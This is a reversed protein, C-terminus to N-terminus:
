NAMQGDQTTRTHTPETVGAALLTRFRFVISLCMHSALSWNRNKESWREGSWGLERVFLPVLKLLPTFLLMVLALWGWGTTTPVALGYVHLVEVGSAKWASTFM